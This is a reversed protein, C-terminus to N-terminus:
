KEYIVDKYLLEDSFFVGNNYFTMKNKDNNFIIIRKNICVFVYYDCISNQSMSIDLFWGDNKKIINCISKVQDTSNYDGHNKWIDVGQKRDNYDGRGKTSKYDILDPFFDRIKDEYFRQAKDGIEMTKRFLRILTDYMPTGILFIENKKYRVIKLLKKLKDITVDENEEINFVFLNKYSFTDGDIEFHEKNLKKYMNVIYDNCKNFIITHCSFNTDAQMLPSWDGDIIVGLDKKKTRPNQGWMGLPEYVEKLIKLIEEKLYLKIKDKRTWSKTIDDNLGMIYSPDTNLSKLREKIDM